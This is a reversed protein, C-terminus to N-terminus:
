GCISRGGPKSEVVETVIELYGGVRECREEDELKSYANLLNMLMRGATQEPTSKFFDPRGCEEATSMFRTALTPADLVVAGFFPDFIVGDLGALYHGPTGVGYVNWGLRLGTFIYLLSLTLPIGKRLQLVRNLYSNAPDYYHERNGSYRHEVALVNRLIEIREAPSELGTALTRAREAMGDLIQRGEAARFDPYETRCLQWCLEELGGWTDLRRSCRIFEIIDPLSGRRFASLAHAAQRVRPIPSGVLENILEPNNARCNSFERVVLQWTEDDEEALLSELARKDAENLM